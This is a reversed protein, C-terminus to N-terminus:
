QPARGFRKSFSVVAVDLDPTSAPPFQRLQRIWDRAESEDGTAIARNALLIMAAPNGPEAAVAAKMEAVSENLHGLQAYVLALEIYAKADRPQLQKATTLEAVAAQLQGLSHLRQGNEYHLAGSQPNHELGAALAKEAAAFNNTAALLGVLLAWADGDEPTLAVASELLPQAAAYNKDQFLVTGLQRRYSGRDPALAIARELWRRTFARDNAGGAAVSLRYADYCRDTLEELWPDSFDRYRASAAAKRRAVATQEAEGFHENVTVLLSWGGFFGPQAAVCQRLHERTATWDGADLDCLALGLLAYGNLADRKIVEAYAASAGARQDTKRLADALRLRAPLYDPALEVARQLLPLAEPLRGFGALLNAKLYSWRASRPELRLLGDYCQSAEGYFANAHYLQALDALAAAPRSFGRASQEAQDVLGTFVAPWSALDPRAPISATVIKHAMWRPWAFWGGIIAAGVTILTAILTIRRAASGMKM